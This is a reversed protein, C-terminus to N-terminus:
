SRRRVLTADDPKIVPLRVLFISGTVPNDPSQTDAAARNFAAITGGHAQVIERAIALGLGVGRRNGGRAKDTQYFREFIRPLEDQPIGPGSDIVRIEVWGERTQASLAVDGGAPTYKLANDVLNSFVQSLRDSDGIMIPFTEGPQALPEEEILRLNVQARSAQPTFKEVTERLLHGLNIPLRELNAVGSDLRALELLDQVMRYMRGAEDFIVQAAGRSAQPDQATGDLIAQAFGQISTLPTKLDHSVNAIFDRQSRKSAEVREAMENLSHALARVEAPGTLKLRRYAGASVSHAAESMQKLPATVWHAIWFALLLSLVLAIVAGRVFPAMFEDRLITLVPAKARQSAVLMYYGGKMPTLVYLWQRGDSDSFIRSPNLKRQILRSWEPLEAGSASRSDALLLGESDFIVVRASAFADARSVAQELRETSSNGLSNAFIQSRQVLITSILRLRQLERRDESPNNILYVLIAAGAISLVVGVVLAYTLWLRFRLSTFMM